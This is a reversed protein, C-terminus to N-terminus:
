KQVCVLYQWPTGGLPLSAVLAFGMDEARPALRGEVGYRFSSMSWREEDLAGGSLLVLTDVDRDALLGPAVRKTTHGGPLAAIRPDTVGALDVITASTAAGLWGIDVAAVHTASALVPRAREILDLRRSLVRRTDPGWQALLLVGSGVALSVRLLRAAEHRAGQGTGDLWLGLLVVGPLVPVFLRFFAMWDGGALMVAVFHAITAALLARPESARTRLLRVVSLPAVLLWVPGSRVFATLVYTFGHQLDPAKAEASLPLPVGFLVLRTAMVVCSPGLVCALGAWLERSAIRGRELAGRRLAVLVVAWPLLEPRWACALGACLDAGPRKRLAWTALALVLPTELGAGAWVAVPVTAAVVAVFPACRRWSAEGVQWLDWGLIAYAALTAALGLWRAAHLLEISSSARFIVGWGAVLQAYGLPTVADTVAGSRNFRAGFGGLLNEAVRAPIFADDVTFGWLYAVLPLAAAAVFLAGFCPSVLTHHPKVRGGVPREHRHGGGNRQM